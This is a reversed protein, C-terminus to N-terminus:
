PFRLAFEVHFCQQFSGTQNPVGNRCRALSFKSGRSWRLRSVQWHKRRQLAPTAFESPTTLRPLGVILHRKRGLTPGDPCTPVACRGGHHV